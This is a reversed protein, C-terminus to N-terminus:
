DNNTYNYDDYYGSDYNAYYGQGYNYGYGLSYDTDNMIISINKIKKSKYMEDIYSLFGLKTYNQRVVYLTLDVKDILSLVDSVLCVPPTDIIIYDYEKKLYDLLNNMSDKELLEAPNPPNPGSNIYHLYPYESKKILKDISINGSLYNSLGLSNDDSFIRFMRPKRLDAGILITKKSSLSYISALNESCFTKGEGSVSSTLLILKAKDSNQDILFEVNSRINRFGESLNSKPRDIVVLESGSFNRGVSGAFPIDTNDKIDQFSTIDTNFTQKLTFFIIPVLIALILGIIFNQKKNPSVLRANQLLTPELVRANSVNSAGLIGTETRKELLFLYISESLKYHREINILQREVLPLSNLMDDILGIRNEINNLLINNSTEQNKIADNINNKIQEINKEINKKYVNVLDGNPDILNLEIKFSLLKDILSSIVKNNIGYISPIILDDLNSNEALYSKLYELYKQEIIVNSKEAQLTNINQYFRDSDKDVKTINNNEKFDQLQSEIYTLSDRIENIQNDIFELTNKSAKNKLSLNEKIYVESLKNLFITEKLADEGKISVNLISADRYLRDVNIRRKYNKAITHPSIWKILTIPFFDNENTKYEKNFLIKFFGERYVIKDGFSYVIFDGENISIEFTNEDIVKVLAKLGYSNELNHPVFTIPRFSYTEVTKIDGKIYYSINFNLEQVTKLITPYSSIFSIEDTFNISSFKNNELLNNLTNAENKIHITVNNEYSMKVYRNTLFALFTFFLISLVFWYWNLRFLNVVKLFSFFNDENNNKSM